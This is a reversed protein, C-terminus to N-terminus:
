APPARGSLVFSPVYPCTENVAVFVRDILRLEPAAPTPAVDTSKEISAWLCAVCTVGARGASADHDGGKGGCVHTFASGMSFWLWCTLVAASTFRRTKSWFAFM